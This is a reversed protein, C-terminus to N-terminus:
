WFQCFQQAEGASHKSRRSFLDQSPILYAPIPQSTFPYPLSFSFCFQSYFLIPNKKMLSLLLMLFIISTFNNSQCCVAIKADKFLSNGRCALLFIQRPIWPLFRHKIIEIESAADSLHLDHSVIFIGFPSLTRGHHNLYKKKRLIKTITPSLCVAFNKNSSQWTVASRKGSM